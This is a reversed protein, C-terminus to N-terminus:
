KQGNNVGMKEALIDGLNSSLPKEELGPIPEPQKQERPPEPKKEQAERLSLGIRKQEPDVKVVKARVVDGIKVVDEPKEVRKNSLQSIHILGDVGEELNVFAGFSTLRVVKGEVVDGVKYKEGVKSWPHPMLQKLSLSIRKTEQDVKTVLVEIEQGEQLRASPHPIREWAIESIHLLGEVGDGLDVFAGFPTLRTVVGKRTQGESLEAFVKAEVKEREEQLVAKRSLVARHRRPEFDILYFESEVGELKSLDSVYGLDAQSAPLFAILGNVSVQLGGKIAHLIKGAVRRHQEFATKLEEWALEEDAKRKSLRTKEDEAKLVMVKITEGVKVVERASTVKESTLDALPITFDSKGGVNVAIEDDNVAVVVGEIIKGEELRPIEQNLLLEGNEMAQQSNDVKDVEETLHGNTVQNEEMTIGGTYNQKLWDVVESIQGQPTSAGATVGIINKGALWHPNIEDKAEIHYTPTYLAGIEVLKRTNASNKGGIVFLLDVQRALAATEEQRERTAHCITNFIKIEKAQPLLFDVAGALQEQPLTTQCVIGLRPKFPGTRWKEPTAPDAVVAEGDVADVVAQVEPHKPDGIVVVQYGDQRLGQALLQEQKVFPCTADIVQLGKEEAAAIIQPGAGHSRILLIGGPEAETLDTITRIGQKELEAVVRPNHILPGLIYVPQRNQARCDLAMKLAREVGFCFGAKKGVIIKGM